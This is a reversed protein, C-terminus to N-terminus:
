QRGTTDRPVCHGASDPYAYRGVCERLPAPPQPAWPRFIVCGALQILCLLGVVRLAARTRASQLRKMFDVFSRREAIQLPRANARFDAMRREGANPHTSALTREAEELRSYKAIEEETDAIDRAVDDDSIHSWKPLLEPTIPDPYKTDGTNTQAHSM